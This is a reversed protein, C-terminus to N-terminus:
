KSAKIFFHRVNILFVARNIFLIITIIIIIIIIMIIMKNNSRPDNWVCVCVSSMGLQPCEDIYLTLVDTHLDTLAKPSM